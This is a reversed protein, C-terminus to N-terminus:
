HAVRVLTKTKPRNHWEFMDVAALPRANFVMTAGIVFALLVCFLAFGILSWGLPSNDLGAWTTTGLAVYKKGNFSDVDFWSAITINLVEGKKLDRDRIIRHLKRFHPLAATRMWVILDNDDTRPLDLGSDEQLEGSQTASAAISDSYTFKEDEDSRWAIGRKSWNPEQEWRAWQDNWEDTSNAPYLVCANDSMESSCLEEGNVAMRFRDTFVSRAIMGCPYIRKEDWKEFNGCEKDSTDDSKGRLQYDSKSMMYKRHNQYFNDIEYYFYVPANMDHDLTISMTCIKPLTGMDDASTVECGVLNDYRERQYVNKESAEIVSLGFPIFLVAVFLLIGAVAVHTLLPSWAWLKQQAFAGNALSDPVRPKMKLSSVWSSSAPNRDGAKREETAQDSM